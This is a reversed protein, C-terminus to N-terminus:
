LESTSFPEPPNGGSGKQKILTQNQVPKNILTKINRDNHSGIAAM